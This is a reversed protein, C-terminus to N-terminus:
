LRKMMYCAPGPYTALRAQQQPALGTLTEYGLGQWYALSDQVSVLSSFRLGLRTAQEWAFRALAPGTGQGRRRGAVALDHLYLTDPVGPLEFHGGLATLKGITSPYAVLYACVGDGDVAVWATSPATQWRRRIAAEAEVLAPAYCESQIQLVAAIDAERMARFARMFGM